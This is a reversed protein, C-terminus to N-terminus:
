RGLTDAIAQVARYVGTRAERYWWSPAPTSVVNPLGQALAWAEAYKGLALTMRWPETLLEAASHEHGRRDFANIWHLEKEAIGAKDLDRTFRYACGLENASIYPLEPEDAGLRYSASQGVVLVRAEHGGIGYRCLARCPEGVDIGCWARGRVETNLSRAVRELMRSFVPDFFPTEEEALVTKNHFAEKLVNLRAVFGDEQRKYVSPLVRIFGGDSPAKGYSTDILLGPRRM